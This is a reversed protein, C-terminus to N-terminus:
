VTGDHLVKYTNGDITLEVYQNGAGASGAGGTGAGIAGNQRLDNIYGIGWSRNSLGLRYTGDADSYLSAGSLKFSNAGDHEIGVTPSTAGDGFLIQGTRFNIRIRDTSDSRRKIKMLDGGISCTYETRPDDDAAGDIESLMVIGYDSGDAHSNHLTMLGNPNDGAVKVGSIERLYQGNEPPIYDMPSKGSCVTVRDVYLTGGTTGNDTYIYARLYTALADVKISVVQWYFSDGKPNSGTFTTVTNVGDYLAVLGCNAIEGTPVRMRVALTIWKGRWRVIDDVSIVDKRINGSGVSVLKASGGDTEYFTSASDKTITVNTNNWGDFGPESFTAHILTKGMTVRNNGGARGESLEFSHSVTRAWLDMGISNPHVTDSMYSALPNAYKKFASHVDIFGFNEESALQRFERIKLQQNNDTTNPNQGILIIPMDPYDDAMRCSLAAHEARQTIPDTLGNHGFSILCVDADVDTVTLYIDGKFYSAEEGPVSANYCTLTNAGSGTQITVNAGYADTGTDWVKWVITYSPYKAGILELLKYLWEFTENGTSDGVVLLTADEDDAELKSMLGQTHAIAGRGLKKELAKPSQTVSQSYGM